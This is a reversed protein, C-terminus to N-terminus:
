PGAPVAEDSFAMADIFGYQPSEIRPV